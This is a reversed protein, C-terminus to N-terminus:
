NQQKGLCVYCEYLTFAEQEVAAAGTNADSQSFAPVSFFLAVALVSLLRRANQLSASTFSIDMLTSTTKTYLKNMTYLSTTSLGVTKGDNLPTSVFASFLGYAQRPAPKAEKFFHDQSTVKQRVSTFNNMHQKDLTELPLPSFLAM